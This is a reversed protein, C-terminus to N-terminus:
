RELLLTDPTITVCYPIASTRPRPSGTYYFTQQRDWSPIDIRRTQEPPIDTPHEVRRSHLMRGQTDAYNITFILTSITRSTSRNSVFMTERTSRLTKEYGYFRVSDPHAAVTDFPADACSTATPLSLKRSTTNRRRAATDTAASLAILAIATIAFSPRM